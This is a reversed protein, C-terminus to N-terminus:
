NVIPRTYYKAKGTLEPLNGRAMRTELYELTVIFSKKNESVPSNGVITKSELM